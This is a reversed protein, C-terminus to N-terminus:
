GACQEASNPSEEGRTRLRPFRGDPGAALLNMIRAEPLAQGSFDFPSGPKPGVRGIPKTATLSTPLRAASLSRERRLGFGSARLGFASAQEMFMASAM